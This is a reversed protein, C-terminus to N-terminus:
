LSSIKSVPLLNITCNIYCCIRQDAACNDRSQDAGIKRIHAEYSGREILGPKQINQGECCYWMATTHNSDVVSGGM